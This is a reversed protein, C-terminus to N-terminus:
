RSGEGAAGPSSPSSSVEVLVAQERAKGRRQAYAWTVRPDRDDVALERAISDVVHKLAGRLNDHGDLERPSVRTLTVVLGHEVAARVAAQQDRPVRAWCAFAALKEAKKRRIQERVRMRMWRNSSVTPIPITFSLLLTV